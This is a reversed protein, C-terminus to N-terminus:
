TCLESPTTPRQGTGASETQKAQGHLPVCAVCACACVRVYMHAHVRACAQQKAMDPMDVENERANGANYLMGFLVAM